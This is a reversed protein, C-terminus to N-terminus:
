WVYRIYIFYKWHLEIFRSREIVTYM